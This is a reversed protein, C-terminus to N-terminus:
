FRGFGGTQHLASDVTFVKLTNTQDVEKEDDRFSAAESKMLVSPANYHISQQLIQSVLSQDNALNISENRSVGNNQLMRTIFFDSDVKIPDEEVVAAGAPKFADDDVSTM